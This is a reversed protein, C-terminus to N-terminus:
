RQFPANRTEANRQPVYRREFGELLLAANERFSEYLKARTAMLENVTGRPFKSFTAELPYRKADGGPLIRDLIMAEIYAIRNDEISLDGFELVVSDGKHQLCVAKQHGSAAGRGSARSTKAGAQGARAGYHTANAM